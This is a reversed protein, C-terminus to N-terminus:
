DKTAIILDVYLVRCDIAPAFSTGSGANSTNYNTANDLFFVNGSGPVYVNGLGADIVVKVHTDSNLQHAHAALNATSLTVSDTATRGFLTSFAVSGGSGATGSVVRLAKDNHTTQKTWGTPAASQQFLMATTSPFGSAGISVGNVTLTGSVTLSGNVTMTGNYVGSGGSMQPNLAAARSTDTGHIHDIKAAYTSTGSAATGNVKIQAVETSQAQQAIVFATSAIATSNNNRAQTVVTATGTFAPSALLAYASLNPAPPVKYTMDAALFSGSGASGPPPAPVLGISGGAGSDGTAAPLITLLQSIPIAQPAATGAMTSGVFTNQSIGALSSLPLNSIPPATYPVRSWVVGSFLAWDGVNWTSIGNLTTSGSVSVIFFHGATGSSSVLHPTNTSADWVGDFTLGAFPLQTIPVQGGADLTAIGNPQALKAGIFATTSVRNSIDSAPPTPATPTGVFAPSDLPALGAVGISAAAEAAQNASVICQAVIAKCESLIQNLQTTTAM